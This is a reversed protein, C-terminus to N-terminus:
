STNRDQNLVACEYSMYGSSLSYLEYVNSDHKSSSPGTHPEIPQGAEYEDDVDDGENVDM